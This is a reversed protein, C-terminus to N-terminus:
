WKCVIEVTTSTKRASEHTYAWGRGACMCAKYLYLEEYPGSDIEQM